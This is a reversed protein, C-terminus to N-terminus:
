LVAGTWPGSVLPRCTGGTSIDLFFINLFDSSTEDHMQEQATKPYQLALLEPGNLKAEFLLYSMYKM